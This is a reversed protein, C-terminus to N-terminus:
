HTKYYDTMPKVYFDIVICPKQDESLTASFSIEMMADSNWGLDDGSPITALGIKNYFDNLSAYQHNLITANQDNQAKKITEMDSRFYRGTYMDYCLVDGGGTIIVESRGVPNNRVRDQAIDDRAAREKNAGLKEVIKERYDEFAKESITYAAAMAAARRHGIRHSVIVCTVTMAANAAAPIYLPWVLKVKDRTTMWEGSEVVRQASGHKEILIDTEEQLREAAAFSAKGTLIATTITGAAAIGTLILPSHDFTFKEITKFIQAITM